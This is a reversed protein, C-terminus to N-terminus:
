RRQRVSERVREIGQELSLTPITGLLADLKSVDATARMVEGAVTPLAEVHAEVGLASALLAVVRNISVPMGTGANLVQGGLGPVQAARVLMEIVDDVYVFDRSQTGDGRIGIPKGDVLSRITRPILMSGQSKWNIQGPGYVNFLRLVVTELRGSRSFMECLQEASRKSVAYVSSPRLPTEESLPDEQADGYVAASSAFVVRQVGADAAATLVNLTGLVNTEILRRHSDPSSAPSGAGALHYVLDVGEMARRLSVSDLVDGHMPVITRSPEPVGLEERYVVRIESGSAALREVLFRGVYGAGGTVLIKSTSGANQGQPRQSM